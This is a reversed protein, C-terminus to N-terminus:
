EEDKVESFGMDDLNKHWDNSNCQQMWEVIAQIAGSNDELFDEITRNVMIGTGYGGVERLMKELHRVGRQGEFSYMHNADIYRELKEQLM